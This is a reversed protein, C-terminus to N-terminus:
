QIKHLYPAILADDSAEYGEHIIIANIELERGVYVVVIGCIYYTPHQFIVQNCKKPVSGSNLMAIAPYILRM